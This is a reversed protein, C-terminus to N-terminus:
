WASDVMQSDITISNHEWNFKDPQAAELDSAMNKITQSPVPTPRGDNRSM